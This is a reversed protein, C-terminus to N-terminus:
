PEIRVQSVAEELADYVLEVDDSRLRVCGMSRMQGVSDPDITGHIGYGELGAADGQGELGLWREGIPNKPDDAGFRERTRPNTWFPNVLKSGRRVVFTGVPTSDGEGLGVQFSRIYIWDSEEGPNGAFLDLRFASKSVVAHFPGQMIKLKQGLRINDPNAMRNIRALFTPEVALGERSVIRALSDGSVVTYTDSLPDGAYVRPSFVLDDNLRAIQARLGARDEETATQSRLARCLLERATVLDNAAVKQEAARILGQLDAPYDEMVRAPAPQVPATLPPAAETRAPEPKAQPAPPEPKNATPVVGAKVEGTRGGPGNRIEVPPPAPAEVTKAPEDPTSRDPGSVEALPRHIVPNGGAESEAPGQWLLYGGVTAGLLVVGGVAAAPRLNRRRRRAMNSRKSSSGRASQSPLAM